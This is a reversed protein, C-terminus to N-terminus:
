KNTIIKYLDENLYKGFVKFDSDSKFKTHFLGIKSYKISDSGINLTNASEKRYFTYKHVDMCPMICTKRIVALQSIIKMFKKFSLSPYETKSLYYLAEISRHKNEECELENNEDYTEPCAKEFYDNLYEKISYKRSLDPCYLKM